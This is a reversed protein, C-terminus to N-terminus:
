GARAVALYARGLDTGAFPRQLACALRLLLRGLVSAQFGFLRNEVPRDVGSLRSHVDRTVGPGSARRRALEGAHVRARIPDMLNALPVGYSEIREM